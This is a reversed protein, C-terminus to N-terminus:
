WLLKEGPVRRSGHLECLGHEFDGMFVVDEGEMFVFGACAWGVPHKHPFRAHDLLRLRFKCNCCCCIQGRHGLECESM